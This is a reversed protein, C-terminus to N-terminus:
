PRVGRKELSSRLVRVARFVRSKVGNVSIGLAEAIEAYPTEEIIALAAAARLTAPLERFAAVVQTRTDASIAPDHTPAAANRTVFGDDVPTEARRRSLHDLALNTAIRRAWAGFPRRPDFRTRARYIRWFTELTLDEAADPDRVIRVVWGYVERQYARFLTEFAQINGRTFQELETEVTETM